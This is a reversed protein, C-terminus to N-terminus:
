RLIVLVSRVWVHDVMLLWFAVRLGVVILLVGLACLWGCSMLVWVFVGLGGDVLHFALFYGCCWCLVLCWVVGRCVVLVLLGDFCCDVCVVILVVWGSFTIILVLLWDLWCGCFALTAFELGYCWGLFGGLLDFWIFWFGCEFGFGM